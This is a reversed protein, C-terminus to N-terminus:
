EGSQYKKEISRALINLIAAVAGTIISDSYSDAALHEQYISKINNIIFQRERESSIIVGPVKNYNTIVYAIEFFNNKYPRKTWVEMEEIHIEFLKDISETQM